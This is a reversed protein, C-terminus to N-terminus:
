RSQLSPPEKPDADAGLARLREKVAGINPGTPAFQVYKRYEGIAAATNKQGEYVTGMYYYCDVLNKDLAIAKRYNEMSKFLNNNGQYATGLNMRTTADEEIALADEYDRIAGVVDYPNDKQNLMRLRRQCERMNIKTNFDNPKIALAIAYAQIARYFDEKCQYVTGLAYWIAFEKEMVRLAELYQGIAEDFRGEGQLKVADNYANGASHPEKWPHIYQLGRNDPDEFLKKIRDRAPSGYVGGPNEKLYTQYEEMALEVKNFREDLNALFYWNEKENKGDLDVGKRFEERAGIFDDTQQLCGGLTTHLRANDPVIALAKRYHQIAASYNGASQQKLAEDVFPQAKAGQVSSIYRDLKNREESNLSSVRAKTYSAIANDLQGAGQHAAGLNLWYTSVGPALRTCEQFQPIAEEYKKNRMASTGADFCEDLHANAKREASTPKVAREDGVSRLREIKQQGSAQRVVGSSVAEQSAAAPQGTLTLAFAIAPIVIALARALGGHIKSNDEGYSM